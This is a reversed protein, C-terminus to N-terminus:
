QYKPVMSKLRTHFDGSTRINAAYSRSESFEITQDLRYLEIFKDLDFQTKLIPWKTLFNPLNVSSLRYTTIRKDLESGVGIEFPVWWSLTTYESVVAILHTCAKVRQMLLATLDDTSKLAPDLVDIYCKVNRLRLYEAIELAKGSDEKKHSIFVPM